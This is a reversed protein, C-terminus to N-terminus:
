CETDPKKILDYYPENEKFKLVKKFYYGDPIFKEVDKLRMCYCCYNIVTEVFEEEFELNLCGVRSAWVYGAPQDYSPKSSKFGYYFVMPNSTKKVFLTGDPYDRSLEVEKIAEIKENTKFYPVGQCVCSFTFM